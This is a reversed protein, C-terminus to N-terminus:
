LRAPIDAAKRLQLFTLAGLYWVPGRGLLCSGQGPPESLTDAQTHKQPHQSQTHASSRTLTQLNPRIRTHTSVRAEHQCSPVQTTCSPVETDTHRHHSPLSHRLILNQIHADRFIHTIIKTRGPVYRSTQTNTVTRSHFHTDACTQIHVQIYRTHTQTDTHTIHVFAHAHIHIHTNM